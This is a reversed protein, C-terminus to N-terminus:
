RTLAPLVKDRYGAFFAEAECGIQGIYVEEFGADVYARVAAVHEEVDDGCPINESVQRRTVLRSSQEFHAPTPLIQNLEGPLQETPWLRHATDM